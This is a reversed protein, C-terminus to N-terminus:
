LQQGLSICSVPVLRNVDLFIVAAIYITSNKYVNQVFYKDLNLICKSWSLQLTWWLDYSSLWEILPCPWFDSERSSTTTFFQHFLSIIGDMIRVSKLCEADQNCSRALATFMNRKRYCALMSKELIRHNTVLINRWLNRRISLIWAANVFLLVCCILPHIWWFFSCM